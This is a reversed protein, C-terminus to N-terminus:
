RDGGHANGAGERQKQREAAEDALTRAELGIVLGTLACRVSDPVGAIEGPFLTLEEVTIPLLDFIVQRAEGTLGLGSLVNEFIEGTERQHIEGLRGMAARASLPRFHERIEERESERARQVECLQEWRVAAAILHRATIATL